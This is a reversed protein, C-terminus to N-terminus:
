LALTGANDKEDEGIQSAVVVYSNRFRGTEGPNEM